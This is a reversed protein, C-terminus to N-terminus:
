IYKREDHPGEFPGRLLPPHPRDGSADAADSEPTERLEFLGCWSPLRRKQAAGRGVVSLKVSKPINWLVCGAEAAAIVVAARAAGM